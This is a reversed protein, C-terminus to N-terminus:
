TLLCIYIHIYYINILDYICIYKLSLNTNQWHGVVKFILGCSVDLNEVTKQRPWKWASSRAAKRKIGLIVFCACTAMKAGILVGHTASWGISQVTTKVESPALGWSMSLSRFGWRKSSFKSFFYPWDLFEQLQVRQLIRLLPGYGVLLVAHNITADQRVRELASLMWLHGMVLTRELTIQRFFDYIVMRNSKCGDFVERLLRLM